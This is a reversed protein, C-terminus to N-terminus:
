YEDKYKRFHEYLAYGAAAANLYLFINGVIGLDGAQLFKPQLQISNLMNKKAEDFSALQNDRLTNQRNDPEYIDSTIKQVENHVYMTYPDIVKSDFLVLRLEHISSTGSEKTISSDREIFNRISKDQCFTPQSIILLSIFATVLIKIM